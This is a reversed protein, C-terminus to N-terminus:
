SLNNEAFQALEVLFDLVTQLFNIDQIKGEFSCTLSDDVITLRLKNFAENLEMIGQHLRPQALLQKLKRPSSATVNFISNIEESIFPKEEYVIETKKTDYLGGRLGMLELNEEISRHLHINMLVFVTRNYRTRGQVITQMITQFGRYEGTLRPYKFLFTQFQRVSDYKLRLVHSLHRWANLWRLEQIYLTGVTLVMIILMIWNPNSLKYPLILASLLMVVVMFNGLKFKSKPKPIIRENEGNM